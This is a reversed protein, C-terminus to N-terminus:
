DCIKKMLEVIYEKKFISESEKDVYSENVIDLFLKDDNDIEIIKEIM